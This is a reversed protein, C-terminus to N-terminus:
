KDFATNYTSGFGDTQYLVGVGYIICDLTFDDAAITANRFICGTIVSGSTLASSGGAGFTSGTASFYTTNTGFTSLSCITNIQETCLGVVVTSPSAPISTMALGLTIFNSSGGSTGSTCYTVFPTIPTGEKYDKPLQFSFGLSKSAAGDLYIGQTGIISAHATSIDTLKYLAVDTSMLSGVGLWVTNYVTSGLTLKGTITCSSSITVQSSMTVAGSMTIAGAISLSTTGGFTGVNLAKTDLRQFDGYEKHM